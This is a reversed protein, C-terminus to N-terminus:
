SDKWANRTALLSVVESVWNSSRVNLIVDNRPMLETQTHYHQIKKKFSAPQKCFNLLTTDSPQLDVRPMTPFGIVRCHQALPQQLNQQTTIKCLAMFRTQALNPTYPAVFTKPICCMNFATNDKHEQESLEQHHGKGEETSM